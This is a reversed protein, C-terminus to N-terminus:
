HGEVPLREVLAVAEVQDNNILVDRVSSAAVGTVLLYYEGLHSPGAVIEASVERLLQRMDFERIDPNFSVRLFPEHAIDGPHATRFGAYDEEGHRGGWLNFIVVSQAVLLVAMAAFVPRSPVLGALWAWAAEFGSGRRVRREETDQRRIRAVVHGLGDDEPVNTMATAIVARRVADEWDNARAKDGNSPGPRETRQEMNTIGM